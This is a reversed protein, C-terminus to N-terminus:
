IFRCQRHYRAPLFAGLAFDQRRRVDVEDAPYVM